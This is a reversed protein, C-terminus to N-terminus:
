GVERGAPPIETNVSKASVRRRVAIAPDFLSDCQHHAIHFRPWRENSDVRLAKGTVNEVRQAAIAALLKFEGQGHDRIFAGTDQDILLLFPAANTQHCFQLGVFQLVGTKVGHFGVFAEAELGIMAVEQKGTLYQFREAHRAHPQEGVIGVLHFGKLSGTNVNDFTNRAFDCGARVRFFVQPCLFLFEPM